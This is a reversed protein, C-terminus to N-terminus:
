LFRFSSSGKLGLSERNIETKISTLKHAKSNGDIMPMM